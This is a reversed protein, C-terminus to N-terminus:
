TCIYSSMHTYVTLSHCDFSCAHVKSVCSSGINTHSISRDHSSEDGFTHNKLQVVEDIITVGGSRGGLNYWTIGRRKKVNSSAFITLVAVFFLVTTAGEDKVHASRERPNIKWEKNSGDDSCHLSKQKMRGNWKNWVNSIPHITPIAVFNCRMRVIVVIRRYVINIPVHKSRANGHRGIAGIM